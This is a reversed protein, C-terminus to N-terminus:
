KRLMNKSALIAILKQKSIKAGKTTKLIWGVKWLIFQAHFSLTQTIGSFTTSCLVNFINILGNTTEIGEEHGNSNMYDAPIYFYFALKWKVKEQQM